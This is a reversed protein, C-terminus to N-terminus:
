GIAAGFPLVEPGVSATDGKADDRCSAPLQEPASLGSWVESSRARERSGTTKTVITLGSWRQGEWTLSGHNTYDIANKAAPTGDDAVHGNVELYLTGVIEANRTVHIHPATRM